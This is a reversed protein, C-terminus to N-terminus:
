SDGRDKTQREIQDIGLRVLLRMASSRNWGGPPGQDKPLLSMAADLREVFSAPARLVITHGTAKAKPQLSQVMEEAAAEAEAELVSELPEPEDYFAVQLRESPVETEPQKFMDQLSEGLAPAATRKSM